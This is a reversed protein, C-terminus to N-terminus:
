PKTGPMWDKVKQPANPHLLEDRDRMPILVREFLRALIEASNILILYHLPGVDAVVISGM